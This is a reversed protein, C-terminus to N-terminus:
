GSFYCKNESKNCYEKNCNLGKITNECQSLTNDCCYYEKTGTGTINKQGNKYVYTETYFSPSYYMKNPDSTM